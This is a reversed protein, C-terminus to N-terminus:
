ACTGESGHEEVPAIVAPDEPIVPESVVPEAGPVDVVTDVVTEPAPIIDDTPTLTPDEVPADELPDNVTAPIVDDAPAIIPNQVDQEDPNYDSSDLETNNDVIANEDQEPTVVTEENVETPNEVTEVVKKEDKEM